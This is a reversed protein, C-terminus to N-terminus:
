GATSQLTYVAKLGTVADPTDTVPPLANGSFSIQASLTPIGVGAAIAFIAFLRLIHQKM